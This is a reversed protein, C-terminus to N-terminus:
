AIIKQCKKVEEDGFFDIFYESGVKNLIDEVNLKLKEFSEYAEIDIWYYKIFRWLIEILNLEPSYTPLYIIICEDEAWKELNDKFLKSTHVPANDVVVFLPNKKKRNSFFDNLCEVVLESNVTGEAQYAHLENGVSMFGLINLSRGKNSKLETTEGIKQWGYPINPVQNFATGDFFFLDIDSSLNAKVLGRLFEQFVLFELENRKSKLSKRMRKWVLRKKKAVRKLTDISIEKGYTKKVWPILKKLSRSDKALQKCVGTEEDATLIRPRGPRPEDKMDGFKEDKFRDIWISVTVRHYGLIGAIEKVCFGKNSLILCHARARARINDSTYYVQSLEELLKDSLKQVHKM